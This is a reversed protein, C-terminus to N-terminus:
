RRAATSNVATKGKRRARQRPASEVREIDAISTVRVVFLLRLHEQLGLGVVVRMISELSATAPRTEVNHVTNVNLGVRKALEHQPIRAALRHALLRGGLETCLEATTMLRIDVM